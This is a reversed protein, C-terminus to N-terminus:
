GVNCATVMCGATISYVQSSTVILHDHLNVGLKGLVESIHRTMQLDESSPTCQGGPHNHVLIIATAGHLLAMRAVERPYVPAHNVTGEGIIEQHVLTNAANLCFVLVCERDRFGMSMRLYDVVDEPSSIIKGNEIDEELARVWVERVLQLLTAGNAGIGEVNLLDRHTQQFVGALSGHRALLQKAPPKTDKRPIAFSLILELLEYDALAGSGGNLFKQRLRKRHGSYAQTSTLEKTV